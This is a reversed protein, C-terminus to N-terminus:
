ECLWPKKICPDFPPTCYCTSSNWTGGDDECSQQQAPNCSSPPPPNLANRLQTLSGYQTVLGYIIPETEGEPMLLVSAFSNDSNVLVIGQARTSGISTDPNLNLFLLYKQGYVLSSVNNVQLDFAVDDIVANGGVLPVLVQGAQLPLLEPPPTPSFTCGECPVYPKQTLTETLQFKNWTYITDPDDYWVSQQAILQGVVISNNSIAENLDNAILSNTSISLSFNSQGSAHAQQAYWRLSGEAPQGQQARVVSPSSTYRTHALWVGSISAVFLVTLAIVLRNKTAM